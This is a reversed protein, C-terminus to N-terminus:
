KPSPPRAFQKDLSAEFKLGGSEAEWTVLIVPTFWWHRALTYLKIVETDGCDLCCVYWHSGCTEGTRTIGGGEVWGGVMCGPLESRNEM